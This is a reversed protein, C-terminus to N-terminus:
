FNGNLQIVKQSRQKPKYLEPIQKNSYKTKLKIIKQMSDTKAKKSNLNQQEIKSQNFTFLSRNSVLNFRNYLPKRVIKSQKAPKVHFVLSNKLSMYESNKKKSKVIGSKNQFKEM